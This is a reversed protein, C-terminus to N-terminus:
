ELAGFGGLLSIAALDGFLEDLVDDVIRRRYSM